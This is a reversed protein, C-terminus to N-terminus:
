YPNLILLEDIFYLIYQNPYASHNQLKLSLFNLLFYKIWIKMPVPLIAM